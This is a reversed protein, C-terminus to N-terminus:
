SLFFIFKRKGLKTFAVPTSVSRRKGDDALNSSNGTCPFLKGNRFVIFQLRCTSNDVSQLAPSSFPPGALPFHISAVAVSNQLYIVCSFFCLSIFILCARGPAFCVLLFFCLTYNAKGRRSLLLASTVMPILLAWECVEKTRSGAASTCITRVMKARPCMLVATQNLSVVLRVNDEKWCISVQSIGFVILGPTLTCARSPEARGPESSVSSHDHSPSTVRWWQARSEVTRMNM